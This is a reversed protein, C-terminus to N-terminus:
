AAKPAVADTETSDSIGQSRAHYLRRYTECSQLLETHTGQAIVHGREMVVISTILQLISETVSHTIIFTLRDRVFTELTQHILRESLSDIASTAEDLILIDPNRLIARALSIRQRQGGSLSGGKEGVRTKMGEPLQALFQTVYAQEAAKEIQRATSRFNGYRINEYITDDFLLTEQTVVGIHSRLDQLSAERIDVGDILLAGRDPDFFRPVLNVLTSKGSGNEGVVAIVEGRKFKLNVNDLVTPRTHGLSLYTFGVDRFEITKFKAPLPRPNRAEIVQTKLDILEFVRDAAAGARRVKSFVSSLKRIPDFVGALLAYLLSLDALELTESALQIDWITTTGRLVLYAGPLMAVVVATMGLMETAPNTLAEATAIKMSKKYFTKSERHHLILHRPAGEFAIVIKAAEFTEELVKYIRAVSEMSKQSAKKLMKGLRHFVIGAIPVLLVALTMLRWNVWFALGLCAIAKLPERVVKGGMLGLGSGLAEIDFTFRSMLESTGHMKLTQYDLALVRRFCAKRVRMVTLQVVSGVLMEECFMCILKIVTLVLLLGMIMTFMYFRDGPVHPVVRVEIWRLVALKRQAEAMKSDARSKKRDWSPVDVPRANLVAIEYEELQERSRKIQADCEAIQKEIHESLTEGQLLVKVVPYSVSLTAGWMVAVLLAFVFSLLLQKRSPWVFPFFLRTLSNM